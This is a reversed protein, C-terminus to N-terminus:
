PYFKCKHFMNPLTVVGHTVGLGWLKAGWFKNNSFVNSNKISSNKKV